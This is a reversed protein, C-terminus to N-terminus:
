ASGLPCHQAMCEACTSPQRQTPKECGRVGTARYQGFVCRAFEKVHRAETILTQQVALEDRLNRLEVAARAMAGDDEVATSVRATGERALQIEVERRRRNAVEEAAVAEEM